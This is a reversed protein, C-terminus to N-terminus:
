GPCAGVKPNYDAFMGTPNNKWVWTHLIYVPLYPHPHFTRGFLMPPNLPDVADMPVIYEVAVLRLKGNGAIEYVMAEPTSVNVTPDALNEFDVYHVGMGGSANDFCTPDGPLGLGTTPHGGVEPPIAFADYGDAQAAAQRHYGATAARLTALDRNLDTKSYDGAPADALAPAATAIMMLALLTFLM